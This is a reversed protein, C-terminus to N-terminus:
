RNGIWWHSVTSASVVMKSNSNVSSSQTSLYGLVVSILLVGLILGITSKRKVKLAM